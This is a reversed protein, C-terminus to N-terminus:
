AGVLPVVAQRDGAPRVGRQVVGAELQTTQVLVHAAGPPQQAGPHLLDPARAPVQGAVVREGVEQVGRAVRHLVRGLELDEVLVGPVRVHVVEGLGLDAVLPAGRVRHVLEDRLLREVVGVLTQEDSRRDSRPMFNAVQSSPPTTVAPTTPSCPSCARGASTVTSSRTRAPSGAASSTPSAASDAGGTGSASTRSSGGSCAGVTRSKTAKSSCTSPTRLAM